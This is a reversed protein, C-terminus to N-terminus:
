SFNLWKEALSNNFCLLYSLYYISVDYGGCFLGNWDYNVPTDFGYRWAISRMPPEILGGHGKVFGRQLIVIIVCSIFKHIVDMKLYPEPM